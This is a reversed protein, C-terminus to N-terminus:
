YINGLLINGFFGIPHNPMGEYDYAADSNIKTSFTTTLLRNINQTTDYLDTHDAVVLLRGGDNVWLSLRKSFEDSLSASPM